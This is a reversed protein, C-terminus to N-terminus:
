DLSHDTASLSRMPCIILASSALLICKASLADPFVIPAASLVLTGPGFTSGSTAAGLFRLGLSFVM